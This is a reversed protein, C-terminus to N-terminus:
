CTGEKRCFHESCFLLCRKWFILGVALCGAGMSARFVLAMAQSPVSLHQIELSEPSGSHFRNGTGVVVLNKRREM